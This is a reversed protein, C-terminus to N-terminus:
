ETFITLTSGWISKTYTNILVINNYQVNCIWKYYLLTNYLITCDYCFAIPVPHIIGWCNGLIYTQLVYLITKLHFFRHSHQQQQSSFMFSCSFIFQPCSLPTMMTRNFTTQLSSVYNKIENGLWFLINYSITWFKKILGFLFDNGTWKFTNGFCFTFLFPCFKKSDTAWYGIRKYHFKICRHHHM